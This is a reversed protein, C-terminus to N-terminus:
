GPFIGAWIGLASILGRRVAIAAAEARNTVGLKRFLNRLHAKITNDTLRTEMAIQRNTMGRGIMRLVELEKPTLDKQALRERVHQPLTEMLVNEGAVVRRLTSLVAEGRDTKMLFARAGARASAVLDDESCFASLVVAYTEWRFEQAVKLVASGDGDPLRLDVLILTPRVKKLQGVAEAVSGCHGVVEFDPQASLLSAIGDVVFPHDDVILVRVTETRLPNSAEHRGSVTPRESDKAM